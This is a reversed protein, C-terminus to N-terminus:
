GWRRVAPAMPPPDERRLDEDGGVLRGGTVVVVRIEPDAKATEWVELLERQMAHDFANSAEPRHLTVLAKHDRVDFLIAEFDSM